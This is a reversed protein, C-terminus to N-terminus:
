NNPKISQCQWCIEFSQENWENCFQCQWRMDPQINFNTLTEKYVSKAQEISSENLLWVEPLVELFPVEGALSQSFENKIFADINNVELAFVIANAEIM